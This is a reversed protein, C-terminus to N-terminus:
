KILPGSQLVGQKAVFPKMPAPIFPPTAENLLVKKNLSAEYAEQLLLDRESLPEDSASTVEEAFDINAETNDQGEQSGAESTYAVADDVSTFKADNTILVKTTGEFSRKDPSSEELEQLEHTQTRYFADLTGSSNTPTLFKYTLAQKDVTFMCKFQPLFGKNDDYVQTPNNFDEIMIKDKYSKSGKEGDMELVRMFRFRNALKYGVEAGISYSDKSVDFTNLQKPLNIFYRPVFAGYIEYSDGDLSTIGFNFAGSLGPEVKANVIEYRTYDEYDSVLKLSGQITNSGLSLAAKGAKEVHVSMFPFQEDGTYITVDIDNLPIVEESTELPEEEKNNSPVLQELKEANFKLLGTKYSVFLVAGVAALAVLVLGIIYLYSKRRGQSKDKKMHAGRDKAKMHEQAQPAEQSSEIDLEKGCFDCAKAGDPLKM